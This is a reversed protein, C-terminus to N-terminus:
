LHYYVMHKAIFAIILKPSLYGEEVKLIGSLHDNYMMRHDGKFGFLITPPVM